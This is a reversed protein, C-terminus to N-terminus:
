SSVRNDTPTITEPSHGNLFLRLHDEVQKAASFEREVKLGAAEGLQKAWEPRELVRVMASALAQPDGPPVLLGTKENEIAQTTGSVMTAIIPKCSAMAEVLAMALGEWLSPLVFIDSAALLEPIDSRTGLFLITNELGAAKTRAEMDRRLEGDGVLLIRLDPFAEVVPAAAEILFRHGKQEKFTAVVIMVPADPPIGLADRVADRDVPRRYRELDVSNFIVRIKNEPVGAMTERISSKTDESVAIFGDVYRAGGTYLAHHAWRKPGLLWHHRKLHDPRLDFNANQFTWYIKVKRKPRLSLILFDLSRLLHTQIVDVQYRDILEILAKRMRRLDSLYGPLSVVSHAPGPIIEVPIGLLEIKGRLPGDAFACVVARQGAIEFHQALTRVVEQAGGVELNSVVQLITLPPRQKSDSNM